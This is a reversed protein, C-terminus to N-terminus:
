VLGSPEQPTLHLFASSFRGFPTERWAARRLRAPGARGPRVAPGARRRAGGGAGLVGGQPRAAGAAAGRVGRADGGRRARRDRGGAEGRGPERRRSPQRSRGGGPGTPTRAARSGEREDSGAHGGRRTPRAPPRRRRGPATAATPGSPTGVPASGAPTEPRGDEAAAAVPRVSRPGFPVAAM